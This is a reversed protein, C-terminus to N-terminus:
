HYILRQKNLIKIFLEKSEIIAEVDPWYLIQKKDRLLRQENASVMVYDTM